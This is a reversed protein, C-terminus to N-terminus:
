VVANVLTLGCRVMLVYKAGPSGASPLKGTQPPRFRESCINQLPGLNKIVHGPGWFARPLLVAKSSYYLTMYLLEALRRWCHVVQKCLWACIQVRHGVILAHYWVIHVLSFYLAAHLYIDMVAAVLELIANMCGSSSWDATPLLRWVTGFLAAETATCAVGPQKYHVYVSKNMRRHTSTIFLAILDYIIPLLKKESKTSNLQTPIYHWPM